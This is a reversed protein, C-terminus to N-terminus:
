VKDYSVFSYVLGDRGHRQTSKSVAGFQDDTFRPFFVDCDYDGVVHTLHIHTAYEIAAGYIQGGGIVFINEVQPDNNAAAFASRVDRVDRAGSIVTGGRTVVFNLRNPLPRFKEPISEWTKRGMVVANINEPDMVSTTLTKFFALDEPLKWPIAGGRAIGMNSDVAAVLSIPKPM